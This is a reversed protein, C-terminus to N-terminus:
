LDDDDDNDDSKTGRLSQEAEMAWSLRKHLEEVSHTGQRKLMHNRAAVEVITTLNRGPSVPIQLHPIPVDLIHYHKEDLGLRDYERRQDWDVLEVVLDITIRDRISAIGFLDRINIIGLGRVEMHYKILNSGAGSVKGEEVLTAEVLDDAVLRHGRAILDLACESKGVGSAGSILVGLGFVDVLVGHLTGFKSFAEQFYRSLAHILEGSELRSRFLPTHTEDAVQLLRPPAERNRTIIVCPVEPSMIRSLRLDLEDETLSNLYLMEKEGLIQVRATDIAALGTLALGPKQIRSSAIARGMGQKGGVLKMSLRTAANKYFKDVSLTNM